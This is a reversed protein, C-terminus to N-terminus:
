RHIYVPTGIPAWNYVFEAPGVGLRICGHSVPTGLHAEGEKYGSPWEPLEHIGYGDGLSNWYPMYLGYKPSWARPNKNQIYRTGVPTPTSWKGTSVTYENIQKNNDFLIMKQTELNVDIYRGYYDGPTFINKIIQEARAVTITPVIISTTIQNASIRANIDAIMKEKDITVGDQGEELVKKTDEEIKRDLVGTEIKPAISDIFDNIKSQNISIIIPTNYGYRLLQYNERIRSQIDGRRAFSYANNYIENTEINVGLDTLKPTFKNKNYIFEFNQNAFKEAEKKIIIQAEDQTKGGINVGAIFIKPLIKGDFFHTFDLYAGFIVGIFLLFIFIKLAFNSAEKKLGSRINNTRAAPNSGAVLRTSSIIKLNRAAPNSGAVLRTFSIKLLNRATPNSGVVSRTYSAQEVM